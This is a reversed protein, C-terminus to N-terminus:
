GPIGFATTTAHRPPQPNGPSEGRVVIGGRVGGHDGFPTRTCVTGAVHRAGTLGELLLLHFPLFVGATRPRQNALNLTVLQWRVEEPCPHANLITRLRPSTLGGRPPAAARSGVRSPPRPRCPWSSHTWATPPALAPRLHDNNTQGPRHPGNIAGEQDGRWCSVNWGTTCPVCAVGDTTPSPMRVAGVFITDGTPNSPPPWRNSLFVWREGSRSSSTVPLASRVLSMRRGARVSTRHCRPGGVAEERGHAHFDGTFLTATSTWRPCHSPHTLHRVSHLPSQLSPAGCFGRARHACHPPSPPYTGGGRVAHAVCGHVHRPLPHCERLLGIPASSAPGTPRDDERVLPRAVVLPGPGRQHEYMWHSFAAVTTPPAGGTDHPLIHWWQIGLLVDSVMSYPFSPDRIGHDWGADVLFM